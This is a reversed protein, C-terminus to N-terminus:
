GAIVAMAAPYELIHIGIKKFGAEAVFKWFDAGFETHVMLDKSNVTPNGHFSPPLGRRNRSFRDIIIPITFICRGTSKLVRRCESLARVPNPVHELTDSHIVLDFSASPIALAEMDFRPYEILRHHPMQQLIPTLNGARNIELIHLGAADACFESLTLSNRAYTSVIASALAMARLNNGCALCHTGQQRNIYAIEYSSLQWAEILESWLVESHGFQNAGCVPCSQQNQLFESM